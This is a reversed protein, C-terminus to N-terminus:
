TVFGIDKAVQLLLLSRVGMDDGSNSVNLVIEDFRMGDEPSVILLKVGVFIYYRLRYVQDVCSMSMFMQESISEM